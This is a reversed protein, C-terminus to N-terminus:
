LKGPYVLHLGLLITSLILLLGVASLALAIGGKGRDAIRRAFIYAFMALLGGLIHSWVAPPLAVHSAGLMGAAILGILVQLGLVAVMVRRGNQVWGIFLALLLVLFAVVLHIELVINM